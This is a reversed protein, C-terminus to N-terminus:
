MATMAISSNVIQVPVRRLAEGGQADRVTGAIAAGFAVNAM